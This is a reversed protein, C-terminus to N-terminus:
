VGIIEAGSNRASRGADRSRQRIRRHLPSGTRCVPPQQRGAVEIAVRANVVGKEIPLAGACVTIAEVTCNEDRLALIMAVADDSAADTDIIFRRM